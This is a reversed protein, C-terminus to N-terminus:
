YDLDTGLAYWLENIASGIRPKHEFMRELVYPKRDGGTVRSWRDLLYSMLYHEDNTKERARQLTNHPNMKQHPASRQFRNPATNDLDENLKEDLQQLTVGENQLIKALIIHFRYNLAANEPHPFNGNHCCLLYM